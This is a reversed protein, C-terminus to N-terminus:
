SSEDDTSQCLERIHQFAKLIRESDKAFVSIANEQEIIPDKKLDAKNPKDGKTRWEKTPGVFRIGISPISGRSDGYDHTEVTEIQAMNFTATKYGIILEPKDGIIPKVGEEAKHSIAYKRQYTIGCEDGSYRIVSWVADDFHNYQPFDLKHWYNQLIQKDVILEELLAHTEEFTPGTAQEGEALAQTSFTLSVLLLHAPIAAARGPTAITKKM